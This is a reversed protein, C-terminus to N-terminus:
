KEWKINVEGKENKEVYIVGNRDTEPIVVFRVKEATELGELAEELDEYEMGLALSKVEGVIIPLLTGDYMETHVPQGLLLYHGEKEKLRNMVAEYTNKNYIYESVFSGRFSM